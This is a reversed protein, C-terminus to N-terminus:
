FGRSSLTTIQVMILLDYISHTYAAIGFGRFIYIVGLFLGASFRIIFLRLDPPDGFDGLFHFLSFMIAAIIVAGTKQASNNWQFILKLIKALITILIVRFVFEEYIGAGVALVIQQFLFVKGNSMLLTPLTSLFAWLLVSWLLSEGLMKLLYEGRIETSKLKNKQRLFTVLFGVLFSGSFGYMGYIGFIGLIQRMLVDAGNRLLPMSSASISLIGIEYIIFLPITFIFSYLPTHTDSWYSTKM